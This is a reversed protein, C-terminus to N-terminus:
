TGFGSLKELGKLLTGEVEQKEIWLDRIVAILEERTMSGIRKLDGNIPFVIDDVEIM